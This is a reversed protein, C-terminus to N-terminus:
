NIEASENSTDFYPKVLLLLLHLKAELKYASEPTSPLDVPPVFDEANGTIGQRAFEAWRTMGRIYERFVERPSSADELPLYAPPPDGTMVWIWPDVDPSPSDVRCLFVAFIGGIGGGFYKCKAATCWTHSNLWAEAQESMRRLLSTDEEDEGQMQDVPVLNPVSQIPDPM